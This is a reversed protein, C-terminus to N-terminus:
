ELSANGAGSTGLALVIEVFAAAHASLRTRHWAVAGDMVMPQQHDAYRIPRRVLGPLEAPWSPLALTYGFGGAVFQNRTQPIAGELLRPPVIGNQGLLKLVHDHLPPNIPRPHIVLAEGALASLPVERQRALPHSAPLLAIYAERWLLAWAIQDDEIPLTVFGVDLTGRTLAELQAVSFLERFSLRASPYREAYRRLARPVVAHNLFGNTGLVLDGAGLPDATSPRPLATPKLPLPASLARQAEAVSWGPPSFPPRLQGLLVSQGATLLLLLRELAEGSPAPAGTLSYAQEALSGAQAFEGRAAAREGLTLLSRRVRQAIIARRDYVWDELLGSWDPLHVGALFAGTYLAVGGPLDGADLCNLLRQVDCPLTARVRSGETQVAGPVERRLRHLTTRLSGLPNVARRFFLQSLHTREQPGELALYSLLLLSKSRSCAGGQLELKGLTQLFM